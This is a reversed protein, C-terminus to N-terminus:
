SGSVPKTNSDPNYPVIQLHTVCKCILRSEFYGTAIDISRLLKYWEFLYTCVKWDADSNDVIFLEGGTHSQSFDYFKGPPLGYLYLFFVFIKSHDVGTFVNKSERM